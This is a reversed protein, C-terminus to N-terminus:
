VGEALRERIIQRASRMEASTEGESSELFAAYIERALNRDQPVGRAGEWYIDGLALMAGVVGESAAEKLYAVGKAPDSQRYHFGLFNLASPNKRLAALEYLKIAQAQQVLIQTSNLLRADHLLARLDQPNDMTKSSTAVGISTFQGDIFAKLGEYDKRMALAMAKNRDEEFAPEAGLTLGKSHASDMLERSVESDKEVGQGWRFCKGEMYQAFPYDSEKFLNYAKVRDEGCGLGLYYCLGLFTKTHVNQAASCSQFLMAQAEDSLILFDRFSTLKNLCHNILEGRTKETVNSQTLLFNIVKPALTSDDTLVNMLATVCGQRVEPFKESLGREEILQYFEILEDYTGEVRGTYLFDLLCRVTGQSYASFDLNSIGAAGLVLEHANIGGGKCKITCDMSSDDLRLAYLGTCEFPFELSVVSDVDQKKFPALERDLVSTIKNMGLYSALERLRRCEAVSVSCETIKGAFIDFLRDVIEKRPQIPTRDSSIDIEKDDSDFPSGSAFLGIQKRLLPNIKFERSEQVIKGSPLERSCVMKISYGEHEISRAVRNAVDVPPLPLQAWAKLQNAIDKDANEVFPIKLQMYYQSRKLDPLVGIGRRYCDTLFLRDRHLQEYQEPTRLKQTTDIILKSVAALVCPFAKEPQGFHQYLRGKTETSLNAFEPLSLISEDCHGTGVAKLIFYDIYEEPVRYNSPSKMLYKALYYFEEDKANEMLKGQRLWTDSLANTLMFTVFPKTTDVACYTGTFPYENPPYSLRNIHLRFADFHLLPAESAHYRKSTAEVDNIDKIIKAPNWSSIVGAPMQQVDERTLDAVAYTLIAACQDRSVGAPPTNMLSMVYNPDAILLGKLLVICKDKASFLKFQEAMRFCQLVHKPTVDKLNIPQESSLLRLLDMAEMDVRPFAANLEEHSISHVDLFAYFQTVQQKFAEASVEEKSVKTESEKKSAEEKSVKEEPEGRPDAPLELALGNGQLNDEIQTLRTLLKNLGARDAKGIWTNGLARIRNLDRIAFLPNEEYFRFIDRAVEKASTSWIKSIGTPKKTSYLEKGAGTDERLTVTRVGLYSGAQAGDQIKQSVAEFEDFHEYRTLLQGMDSGSTM